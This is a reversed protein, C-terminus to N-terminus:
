YKHIRKIHCVTHIRTFEHLEHQKKIKFSIRKGQIRVGARESPSQFM